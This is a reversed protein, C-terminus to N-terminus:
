QEQQRRYKEQNCQFHPLLCIMQDLNYKIHFKGIQHLVKSKIQHSMRVWQWQNFAERDLQAITIATTTTTIEEIIETMIIEQSITATSIKVVAASDDKISALIKAVMLSNLCQIM